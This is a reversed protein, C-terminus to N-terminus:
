KRNDLPKAPAMKLEYFSDKKGLYQDAELQTWKDKLVEYINAYADYPIPQFGVKEPMIRQTVVNVKMSRVFRGAAILCCSVLLSFVVISYASKRVKNWANAASVSALPYFLYIGVILLYPMLGRFLFDNVKGIRYIPFIMIFAMIVYFPFAPLQKQRENRFYKFALFFILLNMGINISYEIVRSTMNDPFQWIFGSIPAEEHSLFFILVPVCALFPLIVSNIVLKWDLKFGAFLWKRVILLGALLGSTFAPFVAWWFTLAIPLVINELPLRNKLIYVFMGGIILTPIVQNPVWLLNEFNSWSEIGFDGFEYLEGTLKYFVTKVVHPTDGVAMALLVFLIKKNLAIYVWSLGLFFGIFTWIFIFTESISGTLKSFFAPIVYYGYYYSIVPGDLPIRIPWDYKFLEYFKTNHCWYDFTQYSLGSVGSMFTIILAVTTLLLLDKPNLITESVSNKQLLVNIFLYLLLVIGAVAIALNTWFYFFILNPLLLYGLSLGRLSRINM